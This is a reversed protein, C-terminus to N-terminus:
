WLGTGKPVAVSHATSQLREMEIEKESSLVPSPLGFMSHSIKKAIDPIKNFDIRKNVNASDNIWKTGKYVLDPKYPDYPMKPKHYHDSLSGQAHTHTKVKVISSINLNNEGKEGVTISDLTWKKTAACGQM